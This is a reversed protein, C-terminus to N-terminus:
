PTAVMKPRSRVDIAANSKAALRERVNPVAGAMAAFDAKSEARERRGFFKLLRL